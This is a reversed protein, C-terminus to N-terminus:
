STPELRDAYIIWWLFLIIILHVIQDCLFGNTGNAHARLKVMDVILHSAFITLPIVWGCWDGLLIYASVSHIFSHFLQAKIGNFGKQM